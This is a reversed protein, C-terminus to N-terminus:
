GSPKSDEGIGALGGLCGAALRRIAMAAEVIKPAPASRKGVAGLAWVVGAPVSTVATMGASEASMVGPSHAGPSVGDHTPGSRAWIWIYLRAQTALPVKSPLDTVASLGQPISRLAKM